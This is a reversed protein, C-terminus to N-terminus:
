LIVVIIIFMIYSQIYIYVRTNCAGRSSFTVNIIIVVIDRIVYFDFEMSHTGKQIFMTFRFLM